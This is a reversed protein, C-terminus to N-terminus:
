LEREFRDKARVLIEVVKFAVNELRTGSIGVGIENLYKAGIINPRTEILVDARLGKFTGQFVPIDEEFIEIKIELAKVRGM